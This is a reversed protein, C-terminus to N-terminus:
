RKGLAALALPVTDDPSVKYWAHTIKGKEDILFSSRVIGFYKKGYMSKEGWVGYAEAVAHDIDALLPFGLTFKADFKLQSAPKDPSMGLATVGLKRFDPRADRVHCSQKTCGPTDAKPYFYILVKQGKFASLTVTKGEQDLLSFGPAKDGPELQPM